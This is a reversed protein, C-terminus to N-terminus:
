QGGGPEGEWEAILEDCDKVKNDRLLAFRNEASERSLFAYDLKGNKFVKWWEGDSEIVHRLELKM